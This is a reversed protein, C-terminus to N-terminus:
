HRAQPRQPWKPPHLVPFRFSPGSRNHSFLLLPLPAKSVITLFNDASSVAEYLLKILMFKALLWLRPHLRLSTGKVIARAVGMHLVNRAIKLVFQAMRVPCFVLTVRLNANPNPCVRLDVSNEFATNNFFM